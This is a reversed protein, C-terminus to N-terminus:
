VMRCLFMNPSKWEIGMGFDFIRTEVSADFFVSEFFIYETAYYHWPVEVVSQWLM